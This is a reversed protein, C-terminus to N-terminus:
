SPMIGKYAMNLLSVPHITKIPLNREQIGHEIQVICGPNGTVVFQTNTEKINKMKRDLLKM